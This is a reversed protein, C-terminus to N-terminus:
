ILQEKIKDIFDFSSQISAVITQQLDSSCLMFPTKNITKITISAFTSGQSLSRYYPGMYLLYYYLYMLEVKDSSIGCLGRGIAIKRNSINVNGVPARVCVVISNRDIIKKPSLTYQNSHNLFMDGFAIKGQHFEIASKLNTNTMSNGEVSQGMTIKCVSEM